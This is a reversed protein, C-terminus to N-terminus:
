RAQGLQQMLSPIDIWVNERSIKGDRFELIHLIRFSARREGGPAGLVRGAWTDRGSPKM